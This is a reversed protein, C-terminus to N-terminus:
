AGFIAAFILNIPNNHFFYGVFLTSDLIETVLENPVLSLAAIFLLITISSKVFGIVFGLLSNIFGFFKISEVAKTFLKEILSLVIKCLIFLALGTIVLSSFHGVTLGIHSAITADPAAGEVAVNDVIMDVLFSPLKTNALAEVLGEESLPALMFEGLGSLSETIKEILMSQLSFLGGTQELVTEACFFAVVLAIVSAVLGFICSIFGSKAGRIAAILLWAAVVIDIVYATQFEFNLLNLL